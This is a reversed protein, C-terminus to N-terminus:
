RDADDPPASRRHRAGEKVASEIERRFAAEALGYEACAESVGHFPAIPCGPCLMGRALFPVAADPWHWFLKDLSLDPDDLRPTKM